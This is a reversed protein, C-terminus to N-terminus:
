LARLHKELVDLARELEEDDILLPPLLRIVNGSLGAGIYLVGDELCARTVSKAAVTAPKRPSRGECLEVGIMAGVGRVDAILPVEDALARLRTMMTEGLSKARACVDEREMVELAAVAAAACVPNGGFTGGITGPIAADMVEARGAVAAIPLGGGLAKAWTSLDPLIGAHEYSAWTGTRGLGAQVEDCILLIGHEDCIKRLGRLYAPPCPVMGGEGQLPEIIVAALQEAAVTHVFTDRLRDLEREIFREPALGDGYLFHNPFPLRYVEPAYPGLGRKTGVKSTLTMAMMTRGHFGETYCLVGSRGTAQRAIKIANEVAEAGSNLLMVKTADGHPVRAALKECLDVYPEYTAVHICVHQLREAQARVAAVVEPHSHGLGMVGIGTAMDLVARGDLDHLSSGDGSAVALDTIRPIGRPMIAERRALLKESATMTPM